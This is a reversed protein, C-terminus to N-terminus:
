RSFRGWWAMPDQWCIAALRVDDLAPASAPIVLKRSVQADLNQLAASLLDGRAPTAKRLLFLISELDDRRHALRLLESGDSADDEGPGTDRRVDDALRWAEEAALTETEELTEETLTAVWSSAKALPLSSPDALAAALAAAADDPRSERLRVAVGVAAFRDVDSPSAALEGALKRLWPQLEYADFMAGLNPAPVPPPGAAALLDLPAATGLLELVRVTGDRSEIVFDGHACILRAHGPSSGPFVLRDDREIVNGRTSVSGPPLPEVVAVQRAGSWRRLQFADTPIEVEEFWPELRLADLLAGEAEASRDLMPAADAYDRAEDALAHKAVERRAVAPDVGLELWPILDDQTKPDM